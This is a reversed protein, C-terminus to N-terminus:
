ASISETHKKKKKTKAAAKGRSVVSPEQPPLLGPKAIASNRAEKFEDGEASSQPRRKMKKKGPAPPPVVKDTSEDDPVPVAKGTGDNRLPRVSDPERRVGSASDVASNSRKGKPRTPKLPPPPPPPPASDEAIIARNFTPNATM